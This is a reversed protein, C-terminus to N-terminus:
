QVVFQAIGRQAADRDDLVAYLESRWEPFKAGARRM